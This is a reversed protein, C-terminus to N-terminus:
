SSRRQQPSDRYLARYREAMVSVAFRKARRAGSFQRAGRDPAVRWRAAAPTRRPVLLLSRRSREAVAV